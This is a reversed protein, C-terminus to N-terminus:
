KEQRWANRPHGPCLFAPRFLDKERPDGDLDIWFALRDAPDSCIGGAPDPDVLVLPSFDIMGTRPMIRRVPELLPGIVRDIAQRIPHYPSMFYSLVVHIILLWTLLNALLRILQIVFLM